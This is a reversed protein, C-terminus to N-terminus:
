AAEAPEWLAVFADAPDQIVAYRSGGATRVPTVVKGGLKLCEQLALDLNEVVIYIMWVPPLSANAGRAHCVGAVAEGSQSLMSFDDYGGMTVPQSVWGAVQQYFHRLAPADPVTLDVWGISGYEPRAM